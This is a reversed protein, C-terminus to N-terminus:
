LKELPCYLTTRKINVRRGDLSITASGKMDLVSTDFIDRSDMADFEVRIKELNKKTTKFRQANREIYIPLNSNRISVAEFTHTTSEDTAKMILGPLGSLKWPGSSIFIEPTYWATWLVGGVSAIAKNCLYGCVTLTDDHLEWNYDPIRENYEYDDFVIADIETFQSSPYNKIVVPTFLYEISSYYKGKLRRASDKSIENESFFLISDRKFSHWDWFKSISNNTQLITKYNVVMKENTANGRVPANVKYEYICEVQADSLYISNQPNIRGSSQAIVGLSLLLLIIVLHHITPKM